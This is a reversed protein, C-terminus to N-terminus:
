PPHLRIARTIAIFDYEREEDRTMAIIEVPPVMVEWLSTRRLAVVEARESYIILIDLDNPSDSRIASGFAWVELDDFNAACRCLEELVPWNERLDV